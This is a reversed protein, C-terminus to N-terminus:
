GIGFERRRESNLMRLVRLMLDATRGAVERWSIVAAVDL